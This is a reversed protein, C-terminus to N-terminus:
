FYLLKFIFYKLLNKKKLNQKLFKEYNEISNLMKEFLTKKQYNDISLIKNKKDKLIKFRRKLLRFDDNPNYINFRQLLKDERNKKNDFFVGGVQQDSHIRYNNIKEDVFCFSNNSSSVLAIWEDHHFNKEPLPLINNIIKKRFAMNAGTAINGILNFIQFYNYQINNQKFLKFIDWITNKELKAGKENIIFANSCFVAIEREKKFYDLYKEVKNKEWVDDQDSLFIIENQCLSIAKEFNKVSRLNEENIYINFIEPFKEKYSNLISITADTSGDDCVIIEDITVTQNLISDLQEKLFKEGNFTCLAVSTTM